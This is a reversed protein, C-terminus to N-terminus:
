ISALFATELIFRLQRDSPLVPPSYAKSGLKPWIRSVQEALDGPFSCFEVPQETL